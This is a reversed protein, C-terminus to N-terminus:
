NDISFSTILAQEVLGRDKLNLLSIQDLLRARLPKLLPISEDEIESLTRKSSNWESDLDISISICRLLGPLPLTIDSAQCSIFVSKTPSAEDSALDFLLDILPTAYADFPSLDADIIAFRSIHEFEKLVNRIHRGSSLGMPIEIFGTVSNNIRSLTKAIQRAFQGKLILAAGSKSAIDALAILTMAESATLGIASLKSRAESVTFLGETIYSVIPELLQPMPPPSVLQAPSALSKFIESNALTNIGDDVAKTFANKVTEAVNEARKKNAREIDRGEKILDEKRRKLSEVEGLLASIEVQREQAQSSILGNVRDRVEERVNLIHLIRDLDEGDLVIQDISAAVRKIRLSTDGSSHLRILEALDRKQTKTLTSLQESELTKIFRKFTVDLPSLDLSSASIQSNDLCYQRGEILWTDLSSWSNWPLDFAEDRKLDTPKTSSIAIGDSLVFILNRGALTHWSPALLKIQDRVEDPDTSPVPVRLVETLPPHETELHFHTKGEIGPRGEVTWHVLERRDVTRKITAWTAMVDGSEPFLKLRDEYSLSYLKNDVILCLPRVFVPGKANTIVGIVDYSTSPSCTQLPIPHQEYIGLRRGTAGRQHRIKNMERHVLHSEPSDENLLNLQEAASEMDGNQLRTLAEVLARTSEPFPILANDIGDDDGSIISTILEAIQYLEPAESASNVHSRFLENESLGQSDSETDASHNDPTNRLFSLLSEDPNVACIYGLASRAAFKANDEDIGEEDFHIQLYTIVDAVSMPDTASINKHFWSRVIEDARIPLHCISRVREEHGHPLNQVRAGNLILQTKCDWFFKKLESEHIGKAFLFSLKKPNIERFAM